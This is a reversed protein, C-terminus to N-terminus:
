RLKRRLLGAFFVLGTGFLSLAGPEPVSFGGGGNSNGKIILRGRNAGEIGSPGIIKSRPGMNEVFANLMPSQRAVVGGTRHLQGAVGFQAVCGSCRGVTYGSFSTPFLIPDGSADTHSANNDLVRGHPDSANGIISDAFLPSALVSAFVLAALLLLVRNM